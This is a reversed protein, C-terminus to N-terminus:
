PFVKVEKGNADGSEQSVTEGHAPHSMQDPSIGRFAAQAVAAASAARAVRILEEAKEDSIRTAKIEERAASRATQRIMSVLRGLGLPAIGYARGFAAWAENLAADAEDQGGRSQNM